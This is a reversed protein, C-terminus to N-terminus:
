CDIHRLLATPCHVRHNDPLQSFPHLFRWHTSFAPLCEWFHHPCGLGIKCKRLIIGSKQSVFDSRFVPHRRRLCVRLAVWKTKGAGSMEFSEHFMRGRRKAVANFRTGAVNIKALEKKVHVLRDLRHELNIFHTNEFLSAIM